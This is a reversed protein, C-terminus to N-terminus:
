CCFCLSRLALCLSNVHNLWLNEVNLTGFNQHGWSERLIMWRLSFEPSNFPFRQPDFTNQSSTMTAFSAVTCTTWQGAPDTSNLSSKRNFSTTKVLFGWYTKSSLWPKRHIKRQFLENINGKYSFLGQSFWSSCWRQRRRVACQRIHQRLFIM